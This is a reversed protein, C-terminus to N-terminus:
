PVRPKAPQGGSPHTSRFPPTIGPDNPPISSRASPPTPLPGLGDPPPVDRGGRLASALAALATLVTALAFVVLLGRAFPGSILGPFFERGTITQRAAAPLSSLVGRAALLHGLPNVGLVAAFLSSVPPLSGIQHAIGSPVGQHQLGSALTKPLSGALGAIM